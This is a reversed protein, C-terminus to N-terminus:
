QLWVRAVRFIYHIDMGSCDVRWRHFEGAIWPPFRFGYRHGCHVLRFVFNAEGLREEDYCQCFVHGDGAMARDARGNGSSIKLQIRSPSAECSAGERVLCSRSVTNKSYPVKAM